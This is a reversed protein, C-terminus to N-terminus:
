PAADRIADASNLSYSTRWGEPAVVWWIAYPAVFELFVPRVISYHLRFHPKM